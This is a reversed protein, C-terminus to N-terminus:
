AENIKRKYFIIRAYSEIKNSLNYIKTASEEFVRLMERLTDDDYTEEWYWSAKEKIEYLTNSFKHFEESAFEYDRKTM